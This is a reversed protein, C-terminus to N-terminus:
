LDFASGNAYDNGHRSRKNIDSTYKCTLRTVIRGAQLWVSTITTHSFHSLTQWCDENLREADGRKSLFSSQISKTKWATPLNTTAECIACYGRRGLPFLQDPQAKKRWGENPRSVANPLSNQPKPWTEAEPTASFRQIKAHLRQSATSYRPRIAYHAAPKVHAHDIYRDLGGTM